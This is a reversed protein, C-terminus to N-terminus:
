LILIDDKKLFTLNNPSTIQSNIGVLSFTGNIPAKKKCVCNKEKIKHPVLIPYVTQCINFVHYVKTFFRM